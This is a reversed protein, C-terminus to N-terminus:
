HLYIVLTGPLLNRNPANSQVFVDYNPYDAPNVKIDHNPLKVLQRAHIGHYVSGTLKDRLIINKNSQITEPKTFQYYGSGITYIKKFWNEYQAKISIKERVNLISYKSPDLVELNDEVKKTSINAMSYFNASKTFVGGSSSRTALYQDTAAVTLKTAEELGSVSVEWRQINGKPIGLLKANYEAQPSPALFSLTVNDPLKSIRNALTDTLHRNRNNEGDSLINVLFAHNGYMTPIKTIDDLVQLLGGVLDTMGDAKYTNVISPARNVDVEFALNKVYDAFTYVSVQISQAGSNKAKLSNITQDYTKLLTSTLSGMSTSADLLLIIHEKLM